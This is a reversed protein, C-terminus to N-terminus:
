LFLRNDTTCSGEKDVSGSFKYSIKILVALTNIIITIVIILVVSSM